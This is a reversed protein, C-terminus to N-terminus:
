MILVLLRLPLNLIRNKEKAVFILMAQGVHYMATSSNTYLAQGFIKTYFKETETVDLITFVIHHITMNVQIAEPIM